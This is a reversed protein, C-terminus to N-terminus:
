GQSPDHVTIVITLSPDYNYLVPVVITSQNRDYIVIMCSKYYLGCSNTAVTFLKIVCVRAKLYLPMKRM